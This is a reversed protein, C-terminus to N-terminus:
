ATIDLAAAESAIVDTSVLDSAGSELVAVWDALVEAAYGSDFLDARLSTLQEEYLDAYEAVALFREVLVNSGAIGGMGPGGDGPPTPAEGIEGDGGPIPRGEGPGVDDPLAPPEGTGVDDPLAPLEGTGVDGAPPQGPGREGGRGGMGGGNTVGFALNHDWPVVTFRGTGPDFYLYSNNGPGDIDDFNDILEQMALYTAFADVDLHDALEAAFAADDSENV